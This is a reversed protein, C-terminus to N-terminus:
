AKVTLHHWQLRISIACCTGRMTRWRRARRTAEAKMCTEYLRGHARALGQSMLINGKASGRLPHFAQGFIQRLGVGPLIARAWGDSGALVEPRPHQDAIEALVGSLMDTAAMATFLQLRGLIVALFGFSQGLHEILFRAPTDPLHTRLIAEGLVSLGMLVGAAAGSWLLSAPPRALEAEGDRCTIEYILRASLKGAEEVAIAGQESDLTHDAEVTSLTKEPSM